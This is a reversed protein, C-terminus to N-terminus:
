PLFEFSDTSEAALRSGDHVTYSCNTKGIWSSQIPGSTFFRGEENLQVSGNQQFGGTCQYKIIGNKINSSFEVSQLEGVKQGSGTRNIKLYDNETGISDTIGEKNSVSSLLNIEGKVSSNPVLKATYKITFEKVGEKKCKNDASSHSIIKNTYNASRGFSFTTLNKYGVRLNYIANSDYEQSKGYKKYFDIYFQVYENESVERDSNIHCLKSKNAIFCGYGKLSGKPGESTGSYQVLPVEFYEASWGAQGKFNGSCVGDENIPNSYRQSGTMTSSCDLIAVTTECTYYKHSPGELGWWAGGLGYIPDVAAPTNVATPSSVPSHSAVPAPATTDKHPLLATQDAPAREPLASNNNAVPTLDCNHDCFVTTNSKISKPVRIATKNKIPSKASSAYCNGFLYFFIFFLYKM